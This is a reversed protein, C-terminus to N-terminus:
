QTLFKLQSQSLAKPYYTLRSITGNLYYANGNDITGIRLTDIQSSPVFASNNSSVLSANVAFDIRKTQYSVIYKPNTLSFGSTRNLSSGGGNEGNFFTYSNGGQYFRLDVRYTGPSTSNNLAAIGITGTENSRSIANAFLSGENSNYWSSFNTGTISAIDTSRSATSAGTPIYSTPFAGTELQAGWIYVGSSGDGPYNTSKPSSCELVLRNTITTITSTTITIYLRYWGNPYPIVKASTNSFTSDSIDYSGNPYLRVTSYNSGGSPADTLQILFNRTLSDFKIFVSSTITTGATIGSINRLVWKLSKTSNDYIKDATLNGDPSTTANTSVNINTATWNSFDESYLLSNVRSVEILLGRCEGTIPDHDFRPVNAPATKIYGDADVYTGTTGRTFTIRPDLKKALAFRLDLTPRVNPFDANVSQKQQNLKSM